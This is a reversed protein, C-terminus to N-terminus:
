KIFSNRNEKWWNGNIKKALNIVDDETGQLKAAIEKLRLDKTLSDIEGADFAFKPLRIIYEQLTTEVNM